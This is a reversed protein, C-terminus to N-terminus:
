QLAAEWEHITGAANLERENRRLVKRTLPHIDKWRTMAALCEPDFPVHQWTEGRIAQGLAGVTVGMESSLQRLLVGDIWYRRRCEIVLAATLTANHHRDGKETRGKEDRDKDNDTITGLFLHDPRVCSPNDCKHCVCMGNSIPGFHIEWSLRHSLLPRSGRKTAIQGYGKGNLSGTWAWCGDSKRVMAWFREEITKTKM